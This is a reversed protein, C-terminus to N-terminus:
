DELNQEIETIATHFCGVLIVFLIEVCLIQVFNEETLYLIDVASRKAQLLLYIRGLTTPIKLKKVAFDGSESKFFAQLSVNVCAAM